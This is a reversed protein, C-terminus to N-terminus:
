NILGVETSLSFTLVAATRNTLHVTRRNSSHSAPLTSVVSFKLWAMGGDRLTAMGSTLGLAGGGGAGGAGGGATAGLTRSFDRAALWADGTAHLRKDIHLTPTVTRARLLVRLGSLQTLLM